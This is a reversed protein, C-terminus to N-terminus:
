PLNHEAAAHEAPEDAGCRKGTLHLHIDLTFDEYHRGTFAHKKGESFGMCKKKRRLLEM